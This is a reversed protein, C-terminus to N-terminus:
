RTPTRRRVSDPERAGHRLGRRAQRADFRAPAVAAFEAQTIPAFDGGLLEVIMAAGLPATATGNSGHALNVYIGEHGAFTMAGIVPLRDSSVGRIGRASGLRSVTIGSACAHKFWAHARDLNFATARTQEWPRQEYTAGLAFRGDALPCVYGQSFVPVLLAPTMSAIEMQGAVPLVELAATQTIAPPCGTCLVVADVEVLTDKLHLRLGGAAPAIRLLEGQIRAFSSSGDVRAAVDAGDVIFSDGFYLGSERVPTGAISSATAADVRRLWTGSAAFATAIAEMRTRDLNAGTFQLAGSPRLGLQRYFDGAFFYAARRMRSAATHDSRLRTHLVTGPLSLAASPDREILTTQIGAATLLHSTCVGALGGGIVAVHRPRTKPMFGKRTFTGALTHRKHPRQDIREVAFGVDTLGRRIAGSATFTAVATGEDSLMAIGRLVEASWCEPNRRPDFGDLLWAAMPAPLRGGLDALGETVDGFYISLRIRGGGLSRRHWGPLLPPYANALDRYLPQAGARRLALRSFDVASIPGAEFSVFHLSAGAPAHDLFRQAFTVFNLGSGFGVEGIVM